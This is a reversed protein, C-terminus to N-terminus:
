SKFILATKFQTYYFWFWVVHLRDSWDCDSSSAFVHLRSWARSFAHSWTVIPKLKAYSQIIAINIWPVWYNDFDYFYISIRFSFFVFGIVSIYALGLFNM